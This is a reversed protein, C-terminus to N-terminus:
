QAYKLLPLYDNNGGDMTNTKHKTPKLKNTKYVFLRSRVHFKARTRTRARIAPGLISGVSLFLEVQVIIKTRCHHSAPARMRVEGLPSPAHKGGLRAGPATQSTTRFISNKFHVSKRDSAFGHSAILPVSMSAWPSSCCFFVQGYDYHCERACM